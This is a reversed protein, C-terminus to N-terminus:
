RSVTRASVFLARRAVAVDHAIEALVLKARAGDKGRLVDLAAENCRNQAEEVEDRELTLTHM